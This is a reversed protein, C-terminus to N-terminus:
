KKTEKLQEEIAALRQLVQDRYEDTAANSEEAHADQMSNVILGVLLNVVAFTTVMIFPVFFVWAQPYIEMVPRVIGMSWSELTMIQFLSYASRGLTGFWLIIEENRQPTCAALGTGLCGDGFLKTAIVAGVYFIMAMLLFVSGMGPLATIFGEVVRRLSPAASIVRLVRLIRLARLVSFGQSAPALSVAVIIFDFINWGDRFFRGGYAILKLVLEIVFIGLCIRDLTLILTGAASMAADSTELGLLVANFLIIGIISNRVLDRELFAALTERM